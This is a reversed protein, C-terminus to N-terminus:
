HDKSTDASNKNFLELEAKFGQNIMVTLAQEHESM